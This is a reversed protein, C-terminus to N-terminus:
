RKVYLGQQAGYWAALDAMDQKSLAEVQAAMIPNKRRGAKYDLLAQLLYDPHQGGIRPFTPLPSNGDAGHCAACVESKEKGRLPSGAAQAPEPASTAPLAGYYAALDAMDQESLGGAVGQMTPHSREGSKYVQLAAVIYEPYQGGLKPVRYVEPFSTRYGEIGHCGICMSIKGKAADADGEAAGASLGALVLALGCVLHRGQM